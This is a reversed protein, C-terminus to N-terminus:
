HRLVEIHNEYKFSKPPGTSADKPPALRSVNELPPPPPPPPPPLLFFGQIIILLIMEHDDDNDATSHICNLVKLIHFVWFVVEQGHVIPNDALM